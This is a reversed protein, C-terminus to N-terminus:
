LRSLALSPQLPNQRSDHVSSLERRRPQDQVQGKETEEKRTKTRRQKGYRFSPVFPNGFRSARIQFRLARYSISPGYNQIEYNQIEYNQIEYNQIEYNQM